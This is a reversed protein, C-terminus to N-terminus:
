KVNVLPGKQTACLVFRAIRTSGSRPTWCWARLAPSSRAATQRVHVPWMSTACGTGRYSTSSSSRQLRHPQIIPRTLAPNPAHHPQPQPRPNNDRRHASTGKSDNMGREYVLLLIPKRYKEALTKTLLTGGTLESALSFIVTADADRVNWETRTKYEAAGPVDSPVEKLRDFRGPILAEAASDHALADASAECRRGSPVWGCYPIGNELAFEIAATDVGTQGGAPDTQPFYRPRNHLSKALSSEFLSKSLSLTPSRVRGM